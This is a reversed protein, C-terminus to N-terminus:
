DRIFDMIHIKANRSECNLTVLSNGCIVNQGNFNAFSTEFMQISSMQFENRM